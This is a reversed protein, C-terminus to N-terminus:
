YSLYSLSIMLITDKQHHGRIWKYLVERMEKVTGQSQPDEGLNTLEYPDSRLDYLGKYPKPEWFKEAEPNLIGESRLRIRCLINDV